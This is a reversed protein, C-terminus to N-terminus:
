RRPFYETTGLIDALFIEESNANDLRHVHNADVFVLQVGPVDLFTPHSPFPIAVDELAADLDMTGLFQSYFQRARTRGALERTDLVLYTLDQYPSPHSSNLNDEVAQIAPDGPNSLDVQLGLFESALSLVFNSDSGFNQRAFLHVQEDVLTGHGQFSTDGFIALAAAFQPDTPDIGHFDPPVGGQTIVRRRFADSTLIDYAVHERRVGQFLQETWRAQDGPDPSRGLLDHSLKALFQLDIKRPLIGNLYEGSIALALDLGVFPNSSSGQVVQVLRQVAEPEANRRLFHHYRANVLSQVAEVSAVIQAAVKAPPEGAALLKGWLAAGAPDIPRGLVDTYVGQLFGAPTGGHRAQYEPSGLLMAELQGLPVGGALAAVAGQLGVPDAPRGLLRTYLDQVQHILYEPSNIIAQAVVARPVGADLLHQWSAEGAADPLRGLLDFYLAEVLLQNAPPTVLPHNTITGTGQGRALTAHTPNSLQVFFTEVGGMLQNDNVQVFVTQTTQGPSFTLTTLALPQYEQPSLATGDRTRVQVTVAQSSPASLTVTFIADVAGGTCENVTVDNISVAPTSDAPPPPAVLDALATVEGSVGSPGVRTGNGSTLNVTWLSNDDKSLGFATNDSGGITFGSWEGTPAVSFVQGQDSAPAGGPGGVTVLFDPLQPRDDTGYLTTAKAGSFENTYALHGLRPTRGFQVDGATYQPATGTSVVQATDPALTFNRESRTVQAVVQATVVRLRDVVPDFSMALQTGSLDLSVKPDGVPSAAGTAPDIRYLHSFSLGYLQGTAPRVAIDQLTENPLIGTVTKTVVAAPSSSDFTFLTSHNTLAVLTTLLDREELMELRPVFPGLRCHRIARTEQPIRRRSESTFWM